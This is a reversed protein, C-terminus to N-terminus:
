VTCTYVIGPFTIRFVHVVSNVNQKKRKIHIPTPTYTLLRLTRHQQTGRTKLTYLRVSFKLLDRRKFFVVNEFSRLMM